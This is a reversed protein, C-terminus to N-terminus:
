NKPTLSEIYEKFSSAQGALFKMRPSIFNVKGLGLTNFFRVSGKSLKEKFENTEEINEWRVLTVFALDILNNKLLWAPLLPILGLSKKFKLGAEEELEREIVNIIVTIYDEEFDKIEVGGGILEFKGSLDKGYLSDKEERLRLLIEKNKFIGLFIGIGTAVARGSNLNKKFNEFVKEKDIDLNKM